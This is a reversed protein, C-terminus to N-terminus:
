TKLDRSVREQNGRCYSGEITLEFYHRSNGFALVVVPSWNFRASAGFGFINLKLNQLIKITDQLQKSIM